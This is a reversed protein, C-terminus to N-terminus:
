FGALAGSILLGFERYAKSRFIDYVLVVVIFYFILEFSNM